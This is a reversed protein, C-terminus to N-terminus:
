LTPISVPRALGARSDAPIPPVFMAWRIPGPPDCPPVRENTPIEDAKRQEEEGGNLAGMRVRPRVQRGQTGDALDTVLAHRCGSRVCRDDNFRVHHARGREGCAPQDGPDEMEGRM